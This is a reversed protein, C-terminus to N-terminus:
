LQSSLRLIAGPACRHAAGNGTSCVAGVLDDFRQTVQDDTVATTSGRVQVERRAVQVEWYHQGETMDEGATALCYWTADKDDEHDVEYDRGAELSGGSVTM